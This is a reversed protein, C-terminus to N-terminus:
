ITKKPSTFNVYNNYTLANSIVKTLTNGGIQITASLKQDLCYYVNHISIALKKRMVEQQKQVSLIKPSNKNVYALWDITNYFAEKISVKSPIFINPFNKYNFNTLKEFEKILDKTNLQFNLPKFFGSIHTIVKHWEDFKIKYKRITQCSSCIISKKINDHKTDNIETLFSM